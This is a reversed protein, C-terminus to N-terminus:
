SVNVVIDKNYQHLIWQLKKNIRTRQFTYSLVSGSRSLYNDLNLQKLKPFERILLMPLTFDHSVMRQPYSVNLHLGRLEPMTSLLRLDALPQRAPPADEMDPTPLHFHFPLGRSPDDLYLSSVTLHRLTLLFEPIYQVLNVERTGCHFICLVTLDHRFKHPNCKFKETLSLKTDELYLRDLQPLKRLITDMEVTTDGWGAMQLSRLNRAEALLECDFNKSLQGGDEAKNCGIGVLELKVLNKTLSYWAVEPVRIHEWGFLTLDEINPAHKVIPDLVVTRNGELFILIRALKSKYDPNNEGLQLVTNYVENRRKADGGQFYLSKTHGSGGLELVRIQPAKLLLNRVSKTSVMAHTNLSLVIHTISKNCAGNALFDIGSETVTSRYVNQFLKITTSTSIHSLISDSAFPLVVQTLSPCSSLHSSVKTLREMIGAWDGMRIISNLNTNTMNNIPDGQFDPDESKDILLFQQLYKFKTPSKKSFIKDLVELSKSIDEENIRSVSSGNRRDKLENSTNTLELCFDQLRESFLLQIILQPAKFETQAILQCILQTQLNSPLTSTVYNMVEERVDPELIEKVQNTDQDHEYYVNNESNVITVLTDKICNRSLTLLSPPQCFPAM